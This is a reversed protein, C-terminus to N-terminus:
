GKGMGVYGQKWDSIRAELVGTRMERTKEM